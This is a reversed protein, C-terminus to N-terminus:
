LFRIKMSKLMTLMCLANSEAANLSTILKDCVAIVDADEKPSDLAKKLDLDPNQSLQGLMHLIAELSYNACRLARIIKLRRIDKERYVRYGNEKRKVALLGNMEWNRLTDVSIDLYEAAERRRYTRSGPDQEGTLTQAALRVAEEANARERAVQKQYERTQLMAEDFNGSAATKIVEIVKKRLGNQLVEIQLGCRVLRIQAIHRETFVRYGNPQRQPKPILGLEEYLRVTNPHVGVIRAVEATRLFAM